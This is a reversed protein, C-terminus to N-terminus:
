RRDYPSLAMFGYAARMSADLRDLKVRQYNTLAATADPQNWVHDTDYIIDEMKRELASLDDRECYVRYVDAITVAM